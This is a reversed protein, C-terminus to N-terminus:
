DKLKLRFGYVPFDGQYFDLDESRMFGLQEYMKWANQMASTTHIIMQEFGKAKVREICFLSLAKGLGLGRFKSPVALLRFAATNQEKPAIGGSGYESMDEIYLLTGAIESDIEAVLLNTNPRKAVEGINRLTEFYKPQEEESPFGDINSYVDILIQGIKSYESPKATRTHHKM